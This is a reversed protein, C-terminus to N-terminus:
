QSAERDHRDPSRDQGGNVSHSGPQENHAPSELFELVDHALLLAQTSRPVGEEDFTVSTPDAGLEVAIMAVARALLNVRHESQRLMRVLDNVVGDEPRDVYEISM